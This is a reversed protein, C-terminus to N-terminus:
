KNYVEWEHDDEAKLRMFTVDPHEKGFLAPLNGHHM